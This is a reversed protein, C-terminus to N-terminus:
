QIVELFGQSILFYDIVTLGDLAYVNIRRDQMIFRREILLYNSLISLTVRFKM